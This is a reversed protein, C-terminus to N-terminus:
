PLSVGTDSTPSVAHYWKVTYSNLSAFTHYNREGWGTSTVTSRKEDSAIVDLLESNDRLVSRASALKKPTAAGFTSGNLVYGTSLRAGNPDHLWVGGSDYGLVTIVHGSSTFGVQMTIVAGTDLLARVADWDNAGNWGVTGESVTHVVDSFQELVWAHVYPNKYHTDDAKGSGGGYKEIEWDQANYAGSAVAERIYEILLDELQTYSPDGGVSVVLERSKDVLQQEKLNSVARLQQALSTPSCQANASVSSNVNTNDLQNTYGPYVLPYVVQQELSDLIAPESEMADPYRSTYLAMTMADIDPQQGRERADKLMGDLMRVEEETVGATPSNVLAGAGYSLGESGTQQSTPTDNVITQTTSCVSPAVEYSPVPMTRELAILFLQQAGRLEVLNACTPHRLM